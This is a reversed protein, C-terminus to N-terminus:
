IYPEDIEQGVVNGRVRGRPPSCAFVAGNGIVGVFM